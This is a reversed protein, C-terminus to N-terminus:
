PQNTKDTASSGGKSLIERSLAISIGLGVLFAILKYLTDQPSYVKIDPLKNVTESFFLRLLVGNDYFTFLIGISALCISFYTLTLALKPNRFFIDISSILLILLIYSFFHYILERTKAGQFDNPQRFGNSYFFSYNRGTMEYSANTEAKQYSNEASAVEFSYNVSENTTFRVRTSDDIIISITNAIFGILVFWFVYRPLENKLLM